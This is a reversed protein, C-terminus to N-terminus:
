RFNTFNQCGSATAKRSSFGRRVVDIFQVQANVISIQIFQSL